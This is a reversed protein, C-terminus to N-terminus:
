VCHRLGFPAQQRKEGLHIVPVRIHHEHQEVDRQKRENEPPSASRRGAGPMSRLKQDVGKEHNVRAEVRRETGVLVIGEVRCEGIDADVASGSQTEDV